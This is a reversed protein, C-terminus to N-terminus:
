WARPVPRPIARDWRPRGGAPNPALPPLQDAPRDAPHRDVRPGAEAVRVRDRLLDGFTPYLWEEAPEWPKTIYSDVQNLTFAQEMVAVSEGDSVRILLARRAMPHLEHARVLVDVGGMATLRLSAIVIAVETKDRQARTLLELGREPSDTTLVQYDASYRKALDRQLDARVDGEDEVAIIIPLGM